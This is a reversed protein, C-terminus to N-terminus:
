RPYHWTRGTTLLSKAAEPGWTGAAYNPFLPCSLDRWAELIPTIVAWAAEVEDNRAFLSATGRVADLILREYADRIPSAFAAGYKFDMQVPLVHMDPGPEKSIIELSAGENPQIRLILRNPQLQFGNQQAFLVCPVAKFQIQVETVRTPMRKGAQVYFPVGAWRWTDLSFRFAAFTETVSHPDVGEEERYGPVAQNDVVGPGYQGRVTWLAVEEPTFPRISKLVKVKEDRIDDAALSVPPEMAILTLVQLAHNQVMDRTIGTADFYDGRGEMGLTEAVTIQVNDIYKQNWLPEFIQNAFRLVLINQVTEKGLYHDIRYIQDEGFVAKLEANLQRASALDYGFPKEIILRVWGGEAGPRNLGAEGLHHIVQSFNEPPTALYFLRNGQLGREEDLEHLRASLRRYGEPADLTSRLYFINRAFEDWKPSDAPLRPAFEKVAARLEERYGADTKDRRAFAVVVFPQPLLGQSALSFLAPIIKRHTLDGTAGFLVFACPALSRGAGRDAAEAAMRETIAEM